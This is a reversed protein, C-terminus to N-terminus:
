FRRSVERTPQLLREIAQIQWSLEQCTQEDPLRTAVLRTRQVSLDLVFVAKRIVESATSRLAAIASLIGEVGDAPPEEALQGSRRFSVISLLKQRRAKHSQKRGLPLNAIVTL